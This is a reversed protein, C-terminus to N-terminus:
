YNIIVFLPVISFGLQTVISTNIYKSAVLDNNDESIEAIFKILSTTMGFDAFVRYSGFIGILAWIGYGEIGIKSIIYPILLFYIPTLLVVRIVNSISNKAIINMRLKM